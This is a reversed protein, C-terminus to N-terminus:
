WLPMEEPDEAHEGSTVWSDPDCAGGKHDRTAVVFVGVSAAPFAGQRAQHTGSPGPQSQVLPDPPGLFLGSGGELGLLVAGQKGGGGLVVARSCGCVTSVPLMLMTGPPGPLGDAGPLGPRGPPGQLCLVPCSILTWGSSGGLCRPVLVPFALGGACFTGSVWGLCPLPRVTLIRLPRLRSAQLPGPPIWSSVHLVAAPAPLRGGCPWAPLFPHGTSPLPVSCAERPLGKLIADATPRGRSPLGLALCRANLLQM